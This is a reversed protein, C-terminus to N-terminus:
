EKVLLPIIIGLLQFKAFLTRIVLTTTAKLNAAARKAMTVPAVWVHGRLIGTVGSSETLHKTVDSAPLGLGHLYRHDCPTHRQDQIHQTDNGDHLCLSRSVRSLRNRRM